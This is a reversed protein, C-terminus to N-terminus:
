EKDIPKSPFTPREDGRVIYLGVIDNPLVGNTDTTEGTSPDYLVTNKLADVATNFTMFEQERKVENGSM